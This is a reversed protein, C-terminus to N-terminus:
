PTMLEPIGLAITFIFYWAAPLWKTPTLYRYHPGIFGPVLVYPGIQNPFATHRAQGTQNTGLSPPAVVMGPPPEDLEVKNGYASNLERMVEALTWVRKNNAKNVSNHLHIM